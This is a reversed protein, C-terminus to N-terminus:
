SRSQGAVLERVVALFVYGRWMEVYLSVIWFPYALMNDWTIIEASVRGCAAGLFAWFIDKFSNRPSELSCGGLM